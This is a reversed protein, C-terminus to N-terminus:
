FKGEFFRITLRELYLKQIRNRICIITLKKVFCWAWYISLVNVQLFNSLMQLSLWAEVENIIAAIKLKLREDSLKDLSKIFSQEFEINM